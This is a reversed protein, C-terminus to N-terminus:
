SAAVPANSRVQPKSVTPAKDFRGGFSMWYRPPILGLGMLGLQFIWYGVLYPVAKDMFGYSHLGVGLMNTGFWSWAVIINGGLSLVAMGRQQILGAWRAHLIMANWIVVLVAGNEKSDWGWFRGWSQDAWIGGLVTGVFSLMMAFCIVGYLMQGLQKFMPADLSKTFLGRILFVTGILGAVFTATYGLTVITVHTALWFNTDLVAQMMELTDRDSGLNHAIICTLFGLVSSVLNGVGNPFFRELILGIWVCGWGIFLASSYLNTVPPRGQLYMRVILGVTHIGLTTVLTWFTARRLPETWVGWSLVTLVAALVYLGTCWYFIAASNFAVEVKAKTVDRPRVNTQTAKYAGVAATFDAANGARYAKLMDVWAKAAPVAALETAVWKELDSAPEAALAAAKLRGFVEVRVEASLQRLLQPDREKLMPLDEQKVRNRTMVERIAEFQVAEFLDTNKEDLRQMLDRMVDALSRWDEDPSTPTLTTPPVVLPVRWEVLGYFEGLHENLKLVQRDFLDLELRKQQKKQVRDAEREITKLTDHPKDGLVEKLSYRFGERPKLKLLNLVQDNEIRIFKYGWARSDELKPASAIDLYWLHPSVKREVVDGKADKQTDDTVSEKGTLTRLATRVATDSPKVRGGVVIPLSKFGSLDLGDGPAPPPAAAALAVLACAGAGLWPLRKKNAVSM